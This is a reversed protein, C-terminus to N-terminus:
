SRLLVERDYREALEGRLPKGLRSRPIAAIRWFVTPHGAPMRARLMADLARLDCGDEAVVAIAVEPIGGRPEVGFAAADVLGPHEVSLEDIVAPNLKLGGVNLLESDRGALVLSGNPGLTGRDGPTFWGDHLPVVAGDVLYGSVLGPNRYRVSGETGAPAPMGSEEIVQLEVDVLPAGVDFRDVGPGYWTQSVGGGESSGYVGRVPVGLTTDILELLRATPTAGALRVEELAPLTIGAAVMVHLAHAIQTPSGCLVQIGHRSALSMSEANIADIALYPVGRQLCAVAAHFGGTTSMGIMTLEPRTGTWHFGDDTKRYDFAGVSYAAARPKGTTGSTLLYRFIADPGAFEAPPPISPSATSADIVQEDIWRDDLEIVSAAGIQEGRASGAGRSALLVSPHLVGPDTVGRLSVTRAGLRFLALDVVWELGTPLDLAVLDNARVGANRLRQSVSLVAAFLQSFTLVRRPTIVAAADPREAAYRALNAVPALVSGIM